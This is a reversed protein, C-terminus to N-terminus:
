KTQIHLREKNTDLYFSNTRETAEIILLRNYKATRESRCPAGTKIQGCGLAVTLDAIFADETEGSRHSVVTRWGARRARQVTQITETLTGIQNLKILIANASEEKIGRELFKQNTVFIDDGVIQVSGGLAKTLKQWGEWDNEGLGDEISDIPYMSVLHQLYAIQEEATRAKFEEKRERRKKEIYKKEKADFLESAACDLGISIEVGPKYGAQTIAEVILELAQEDSQLNPAFGGEDGVSVVLGKKKLISKLTHYVEAGWRLAEAFTRAAHPRVMFEQFDVSNDAHAGGNLINFMPCPMIIPHLGGLYRYLELGSSLAGARAVALSTGVIANAGLRSKNPTGDLTILTHDIGTQDFVNMGCIVKAIEGNVSSVVEQVGKGQYRRKDGDRREVAEHEGTSAGSPVSAMASIGNDLGVRVAITPNGRSDLIEFGVISTITPM